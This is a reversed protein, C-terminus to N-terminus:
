AAFERDGGEDGIRQRHRQDRQLLFAACEQIEGRHRWEIDPVDGVDRALVVGAGAGGDHQHLFAVRKQRFEDHGLDIRIPAAFLGFGGAQGLRLEQCVHAVFQARRQVGDQAKRFHDGRAHESGVCLAIDFIGLQDIGRAPVQQRQDVVNEVQGLDLGAAPFQFFAFLIQAVDGLVCQLQHLPAGLVGVGGQFVGDVLLRRQHPAVLACNLLDQEIKQGIGDLERGFMATDGGEGEQVIVAPQHEPHAVGADANRRFVLLAHEVAEALALMVHGDGVLAGAQAQGDDFAQRFGM